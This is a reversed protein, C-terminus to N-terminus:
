DQEKTQRYAQWAKEFGSQIDTVGHSVISKNHRAVFADRTQLWHRASV